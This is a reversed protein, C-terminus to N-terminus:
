YENLTYFSVKIPCYSPFFYYGGHEKILTKSTDSNLKKLHIGYSGDEDVMPRIYTDNGLYVGKYYQIDMTGIEVGDKFTIQTVNNPNFGSQVDFISYSGDQNVEVNDAASNFESIQTVKGNEACSLGGKAFFLKNNHWGLRIPSSSRSPDGLWAIRELQDDKTSYIEYQEGNRILAVTNDGTRTISLYDSLYEGFENERSNGFKYYLKGPDSDGNKTYICLDNERELFTMGETLLEAKGDSSLKYENILTQEEQEGNQGAGESAQDRYETRVYIEDDSCYIVDSIEGAFDGEIGTTEGTNKVLYFKGESECCLFDRNCYRTGLITQKDGLPVKNITTSHRDRDNLIWYAINDSSVILWSGDWESRYVEIDDALIESGHEDIHYFKYNTGSSHVFLLVSGDALNYLQAFYEDPDSNDNIDIDLIETKKSNAALSNTLGKLSTRSLHREKKGESNETYIIAYIWKGDDTIITGNEIGSSVAKDCLEYSKMNGALINDTFYIHRYDTTQDPIFYIMPVKEYLFPDDAAIVQTKFAVLLLLLVSALIQKRIKKGTNMNSGDEKM